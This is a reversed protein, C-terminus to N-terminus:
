YVFLVTVVVTLMVYISCTSVIFSLGESHNAIIDDKLGIKELAVWVESDSFENQPDLNFRLTGAFMVSAQPIITISRRLRSLPVDSTRIDDIFIDGEHYEIVRLLALLLTSKGSGTRGCVGIHEGGAINISVKNLCLPLDPRYRMSVNSIKLEGKSPWADTSVDAAIAPTSTQESDLELYEQLRQVSIIGSQVMTITYCTFTVVRSMSMCSLLAIGISKPDVNVDLSMSLAAILAVALCTLNILSECRLFLWLYTLWQAYTFKNFKDYKEHHWSLCQQQKEFLRITSVGSLMESASAYMKGRANTELIKMHEVSRSYARYIRAFAIGLPIILIAFIPTAALCIGLGGIFSMVNVSAILVSDYLSMDITLQDSTFRSLIEGIPTLDFFTNVRALCVLRLATDHLKRTLQSWWLAFMSTNFCLIGAAGSCMIAYWMLWYDDPHTPDSSSRDTIWFGLWYGSFLQIGNVLLLIVEFVAFRVVGLGRSPSGEDFFTLLASAHFEMSQQVEQKEVLKSAPAVVLAKVDKKRLLEKFKRAAKTVIARHDGINDTFQPFQKTLEKYSLQFVKGNDVVLISSFKWLFNYRSSMVVIRTKDKLFSGVAREMVGYAVTNDLAALPDDFAYIDADAYLARALNIRARQGGSLNAAGESIETQDGNSLNPLDKSLLSCHIAQEYRQPDYDSYFLINDKVTRNQLWHDQGAYAVSGRLLHQGTLPAEGLLASLLLTKGSGAAGVIAVSSGPAINVNIDTLFCCGKGEAHTGLTSSKLCINGHAISCMSVQGFFSSFKKSIVQSKSPMRHFLQQGAVGGDIPQENSDSVDINISKVASEDSEFATVNPAAGDGKEMHQQQEKGRKSAGAAAAAAVLDHEADMLIYLLMRDMCHLMQVTGKCSINFSKFSSQILAIYAIISYLQAVTLDEVFYFCTSFLVFAM